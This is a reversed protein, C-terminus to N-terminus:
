YKKQIYVFLIIAFLILVHWAYYIAVFVPSLWMIGFVLCIFAEGYRDNNFSKYANSCSTVGFWGFIVAGIWAGIGSFVSM